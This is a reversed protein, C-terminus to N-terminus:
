YFRAVILPLVRLSKVSTLNKTNNIFMESPIQCSPSKSYKQTQHYPVFVNATSKLIEILILLM